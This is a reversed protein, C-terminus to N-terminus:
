AAAEGAEEKKRALANMAHAVKLLGAQFVTAMKTAPAKLDRAMMTLLEHRGPMRSLNDVGASDLAKRELLGGKVKLKENDKAYKVLIKAPAVPDSMGFVVATNGVLLSDLSDCGADSLARRILRNKVVRMEIAQSRLQSRLDSVEAVNMGQFDTLIISQAQRLKESLENVLEVKEPRRLM